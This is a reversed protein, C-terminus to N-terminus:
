RRKKSGGKPATSAAPTSARSGGVSGADDAKRKRHGLSDEEALASSSVSVCRGRGTEGPASGNAAAAKKGKRGENPDAYEKEVLSVLTQCRRGIEQPTRSKIFRYALWPVSSLSLLLPCVCWDFRFSPWDNVERKIREYVDDTGLGYKSLQVLLFRDEEESYAKGKTQNAYHISLQQFPHQTSKVKRKLLENLHAQASRRDEADLIKRVYKEHDPRDDPRRDERSM